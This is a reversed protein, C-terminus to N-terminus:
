EEKDLHKLREQIRVVSNEINNLSNNIRDITDVIRESRKELNSIKEDKIALAFGFGFVGVSFAIAMYVSVGLKQLHM